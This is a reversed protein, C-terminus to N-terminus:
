GYKREAIAQRCTNQGGEFRDHSRGVEMEFSTADRLFTHRVRHARIRHQQAGPGIHSAGPAYQVDTRARAYNRQHQRLSSFILAIYLYVRNFYM